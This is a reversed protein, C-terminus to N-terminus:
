LRWCKGPLAGLRMPLFFMSLYSPEISFIVGDKIGTANRPSLMAFILGCASFGSM